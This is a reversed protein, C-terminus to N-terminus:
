KFKYVSGGAKSTVDIVCSGESIRQVITEIVNALPASKCNGKAKKYVSDKIKYGKVVRKETPQNAKM